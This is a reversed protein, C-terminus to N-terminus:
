PDVMRDHVKTCGKPQTSFMLLSITKEKPNKHQVEKYPLEVKRAGKWDGGNCHSHEVKWCINEMSFIQSKKYQVVNKIECM